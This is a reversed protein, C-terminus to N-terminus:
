ELRPLKGGAYLQFEFDHDNMVQFNVKMPEGLYGEPNSLLIAIANDKFDLRLASTYGDKGKGGVVLYTYPGQDVFGQFTTEFEKKNNLCRFARETSISHLDIPKYAKSEIGDYEGRREKTKIVKGKKDYYSIREIYTYLDGVPENLQEFTAFVKGDNFYFFRTGYDKGNGNSFQEELKMIENKPDLHGIVEITEGNSGTFNLSNAQTDAKSVITDIEVMRKDMDKENNFSIVINGKKEVKNENLNETSSSCATLYVLGVLALIQKMIRKM